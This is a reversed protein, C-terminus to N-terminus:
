SRSRGKNRRREITLERFARYSEQLAKRQQATLDPDSQIALEVPSEDDEESHRKRPRLAEASLELSDAISELVQDSPDRLGREIQSLYPNSIGSMAALQRMPLQALERQKRIIEGLSAGQPWASNM